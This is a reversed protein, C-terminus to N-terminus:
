GIRSVFTLDKFAIIIPPEHVRPERDSKILAAPYRGAEKHFSQGCYEIYEPPDTYYPVGCHLSLIIGQCQRPETGYNFWGTWEVRDGIKADEKKM